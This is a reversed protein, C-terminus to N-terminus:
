EDLTWFVKAMEVSKKGSPKSASNFYVNRKDPMVRASEYDVKWGNLALRSYTPKGSEDLTVQMVETSNDKNEKLKGGTMYAEFNKENDPILVIATNGDTVTHHEPSGYNYIVPQRPIVTSYKLDGNRDLACTVIKENLHKTSTFHRDGGTIFLTGDDGMACSINVLSGEVPATLQQSIFEVEADAAPQFSVQFVHTTEKNRADDALFGVGIIKGKEQLLTMGVIVKGGPLEFKRETKEEGRFRSITYSHNTIWQGDRRMKVKQRSAMHVAGDDDVLFGSTSYVDSEVDMPYGGSWINGTKRDLVWCIVLQQEDKTRIRDYFMLLKSGDPSMAFRLGMRYGESYSALSLSGINTSAIKEELTNPDFVECFLNLEKQKQDYSFSTVLLDGDWDMVNELTREKPWVPEKRVIVEGTSPDFATLRHRTDAKGMQPAVLTSEVIVEGVPLTSTRSLYFGKPTEETDNLTVTRFEGAVSQSAAFSCVQFACLVLVSRAATIM